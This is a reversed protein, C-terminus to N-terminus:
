HSIGSKNLDGRKEEEEKKDSEKKKEEIKAEWIRRMPKTEEVPQVGM